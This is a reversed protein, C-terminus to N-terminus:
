FLIKTVMLGTASTALGMGTMAVWNLQLMKLKDMFGLNPTLGWLVKFKTDGPQFPAKIFDLFGDMTFVKNNETDPRIFISEMTSVGAVFVLFGIAPGLFLIIIEPNTM